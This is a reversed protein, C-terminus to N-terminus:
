AALVSAYAQDMRGWAFDGLLRRLRSETRGLNTYHRFRSKWSAREQRPQDPDIEWPHLYFICPQQDARNVRRMAGRSLAYPLVRFYGGGSCPFNRGLLRVTTMPIERLGSREDRFPVRPGDPAGYLDHAIPFTSSSYAYGAEALVEFAWRNRPGISFTPARYGAVVTGGADELIRKAREVDSRFEAPTQTDARRHDYGHSALEHGESVIRRVLGPHREAIWGLTFFTAKTGTEAFIRLLRETNPEVRRPLRDWADRAIVGAFAQVQFYDEVDVTMANLIRGPAVASRPAAEATEPRAPALAAGSEQM